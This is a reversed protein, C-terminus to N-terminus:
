GYKGSTKIYTTGNTSDQVFAESMKKLMGNITGSDCRNNYEIRKLQKEILKLTVVLETLTQLLDKFYKIM